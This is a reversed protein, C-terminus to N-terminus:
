RSGTWKHPLALHARGLRTSSQSVLPLGFRRQTAEQPITSPTRAALGQVAVLFRVAMRPRRPRYEPATERARKQDHLRGVQSRDNALQAGAQSASARDGPSGHRCTDPNDILFDYGHSGSPWGVPEFASGFPEPTLPGSISPMRARRSPIRRLSGAGGRVCLPPSTRSGRRL